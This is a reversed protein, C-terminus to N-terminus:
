IKTFTEWTRHDVVTTTHSWKNTWPSTCSCREFQRDRCSLFNSASWEEEEGRVQAAQLFAQVQCTIAAVAVRSSWEQCSEQFCRPSSGQHWAWPETSSSIDWIKPTMSKGDGTGWPARGHYSLSGPESVVSDVTTWIFGCGTSVAEAESTHFLVPFNTSTWFFDRYRALM